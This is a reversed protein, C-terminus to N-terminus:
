ITVSEKYEGFIATLVTTIEGMTAFARVAQLVAPFLNSGSLAAKRVAALGAQVDKSSRRNKVIRLRDVQNQEVTEGPFELDFSLPEESGTFDNLFLRELLSTWAPSAATLFAARDPDLRKGATRCAT